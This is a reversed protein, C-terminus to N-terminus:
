SKVKRQKHENIRDLKKFLRNLKKDSVGKAEDCVIM